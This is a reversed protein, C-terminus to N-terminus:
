RGTRTPRRIPMPTTPKQRTQALTKAINRQIEQMKEQSATGGTNEATQIHSATEQLLAAEHHIETIQDQKLGLEQKADELNAVLNEIRAETVNIIQTLGTNNPNERETERLDALQDTTKDINAQLDAIQHGIAAAEEVVEVAEAGVDATQELLTEIEVQATDHLDEREESSSRSSRADSNRRSGRGGEHQDSQSDSGSDDERSQMTHIEAIIQRMEDMSANLQYLSHDRLSHQKAFDQMTRIMTESNNEIRGMAQDLEVQGGKSEQLETQLSEIHEKQKRIKQTNEESRDEQRERSMEANTESIEQQIAQIESTLPGLKALVSRAEEELRRANERERQLERQVEAATERANERERQLERQVEAATERAHESQQDDNKHGDPGSDDSASGEGEEADNDEDSDYDRRSTGARTARVRRHNTIQPVRIGTIDKYHALKRKLIEKANRLQLLLAHRVLTLDIKGRFEKSTEDVLDLLNEYMVRDVRAKKIKEFMVANKEMIADQTEEMEDLTKTIDSVVDRAAGTHSSDQDESM